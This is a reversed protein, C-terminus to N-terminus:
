VEPTAGSRAGRSPFRSKLEAHLAKANPVDQDILLKLYGYFALAAQYAESGALAQIDHLTDLAQALSATEARLGIADQFDIDFADQDLFAPRLAPNETAFAHAKEVFALTKEGMLPLARKDASTLSLAYPALLEKLERTKLRIQEVVEPPIPHTHRNPM